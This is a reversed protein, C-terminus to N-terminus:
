TTCAPEKMKQTEPTWSGGILFFETQYTYGPAKKQAKIRKIAQTRENSEEQLGRLPWPHFSKVPSRKRKCTTITLHLDGYPSCIKHTRDQLDRGPQRGPTVKMYRDNPSWYRTWIATGTAIMMAIPHTVHAPRNVYVYVYMDIKYKSTQKHSFFSFM